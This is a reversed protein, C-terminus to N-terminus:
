AGGMGRLVEVTEMVAAEGVYVHPSFRVGFGARADVWIQAEGLRKVVEAAQPFGICVTGGRQDPEAPTLLRWGEAQAAAVLRGTLAQNHAQIQEVGIAQIQEISAAAIMFPLVSPTGGWFRRADPAYRFDEMDFEFPNEHSFWGVDVPRFQAVGAGNAWLFGAGPGGCLWKICSGVVFDAGWARVDIPVVGASQAVDVVTFIDRQRALEVIEAVPNRFSNGYIVHTVLALQVGDDLYRAWQALSFAGEEAPMVRLRYGLRQAQGLVFGVSPFDLESVLITEKGRRPPLSSLIKAVASSINTQPCFEDARGNLLGALSRCFGEIEGLWAEWANGGQGQWLEFFREQAGLALRPLCGVSHSLLYVGEPVVFQDAVEDINM